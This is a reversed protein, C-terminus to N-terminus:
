ANVLEEEPEPTPALAELAEIVTPRNKNEREYAIVEAVDYGDEAVKAAIKAAHVTDYTPWPAKLKPRDAVIFDRGHDVHNLLFKEVEERLGANQIVNSDFTSIRHEAPDIPEGGLTTMTGRFSFSKRAVEREFDTVDTPSFEAIFGPALVRSTGNALVETDQHKAIIKFREYPSVFRM